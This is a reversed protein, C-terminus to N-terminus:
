IRGCQRAFESEQVRINPSEISNHRSLIHLGVSYTIEDQGAAQMYRQDAPDFIIEFGPSSELAAIREKLTAVETLSEAYILAPAIILRGIFIVVWTAVISALLPLM